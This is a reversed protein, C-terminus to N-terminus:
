LNYPFRGLYKSPVRATWPKVPRNHEDRPIEVPGKPVESPIILLGHKPVLGIFEMITEIVWHSAIKPKAATRSNLDLLNPKALTNSIKWDHTDEDIESDGWNTDFHYSRANIRVIFIILALLLTVKFGM